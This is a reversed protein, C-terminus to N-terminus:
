AQGLHEEETVKPSGYAGDVEVFVREIAALLARDEESRKSEGRGLWSQYGSRSVDYLRLMM